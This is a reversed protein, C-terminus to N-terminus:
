LLLQRCVFLGESCSLRVAQWGSGAAGCRGRGRWCSLLPPNHWCLVRRQPHVGAGAGEEPAGAEGLEHAAGM